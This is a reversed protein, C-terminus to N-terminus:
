LDKRMIASLITLYKEAEDGKSPPDLPINPLTEQMTYKLNISAM